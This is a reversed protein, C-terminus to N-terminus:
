IWATNIFRFGFTREAYQNRMKDNMSKWNGDHEELYKVYNEICDRLNNKLIYHRYTM